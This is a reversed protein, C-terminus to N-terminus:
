NKIKFKSLIDQTNVVEQVVDLTLNKTVPNLLVYLPGNCLTLISMLLFYDYSNNEYKIVFNILLIFGGM